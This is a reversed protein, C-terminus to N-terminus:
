LCPQDANRCVTTRNTREGLSRSVMRNQQKPSLNLSVLPVRSTKGRAQPLASKLILDPQETDQASL